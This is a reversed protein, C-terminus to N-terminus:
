PQMERWVWEPVDGQRAHVHLRYEDPFADCLKVNCMAADYTEPTDYTGGERGTNYVRAVDPTISLWGERYSLHTLQWDWGYPERIKGNWLPELEQWFDRSFAWGYPSRLELDMSAVSSNNSMGKIHHDALNVFKTNDKCQILGWEAFRFCDPAVITDEELAIIGTAGSRVVTNYLWRPHNAVGLRRTLHFIETWLDPFRNQACYGFWEFVKRMREYYDDTYKDCSLIVRRVPGLDADLMSELLRELLEPRKYATITVTLM